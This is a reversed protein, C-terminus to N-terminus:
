GCVSVVVECTLVTSQHQIGLGARHGALRRDLAAGRLVDLQVHAPAEVVGRDAGQGFLVRHQAGHEASPHFHQGIRVAPDQDVPATLM